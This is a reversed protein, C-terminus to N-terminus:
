GLAGACREVWSTNYALSHAEIIEGEITKVKPNM